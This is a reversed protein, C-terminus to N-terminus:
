VGVAVLVVERGRERERLDPKPMEPEGRWEGRTNEALKERDGEYTGTGVKKRWSFGWNPWKERKLVTKESGIM